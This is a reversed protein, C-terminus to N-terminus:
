KCVLKRTFFNKNRKSLYRATFNNPRVILKHKVRQSVSLSDAWIATWTPVTIVRTGTKNIPFSLCPSIWFSAYLWLASLHHLHSNFRHFKSSTQSSSGLSQHGSGPNSVTRLKLSHVKHEKGSWIKTEFSSSFMNNLETWPFQAQFFTQSTRKRREKWPWERLLNWAM